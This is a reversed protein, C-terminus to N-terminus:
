GGAIYFGIIGILICLPSYYKSDLKAFETSTIKKFFGIYKFDGMARLFFITPIVWPVVNYVISPLPIYFVGLQVLYFAGFLSLGIGVIASDTKKPNMVREGNEKTPIASGFGLSGGFAWLFHIASLLFFILSELIALIDNM